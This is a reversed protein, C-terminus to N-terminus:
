IRCDLTIHHGSPKGNSGSPVWSFVNENTICCVSESRWRDDLCGFNRLVHLAVMPLCWGNCKINIWTVPAFWGNICINGTKLLVRGPVNFRFLLHLFWNYKYEVLQYYWKYTAFGPEVWPVYLVIQPALTTQKCSQICTCMCSCYSCSLLQDKCFCFLSM